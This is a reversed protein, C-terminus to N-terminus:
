GNVLEQLMYTSGEGEEIRRFIEGEDLGADRLENAFQRVTHGVDPPMLKLAREIEPGFGPTMRDAPVAGGGKTFGEKRMTVLRQVMEGIREDHREIANDVAEVAKNYGDVVQTHRDNHVAREDVRDEREWKLAFWLMAATGWGALSLAILVWAVIIGDSM